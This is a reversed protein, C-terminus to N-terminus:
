KQRVVALGANEWAMIGGGVNSVQTYGADQLLKVAKASRRGSRCMVAIPKDKYAAIENLRAGLEGLPILTATPAHVEAYEGAERVDLLLAGQQNMSLAQQVSIDDAAQIKQVAFVIGLTALILLINKKLSANM